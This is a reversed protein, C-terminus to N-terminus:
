AAAAAAELALADSLAECLETIAALREDPEAPVRLALTKVRSEYIAEPVRERIAAVAAADLEIPTASFREGRVEATRAGARALEIRVRGLALLSSVPEPLPGFRD